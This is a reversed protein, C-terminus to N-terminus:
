IEAKRVAIWSFFNVLGCVIALTLIGIFPNGSSIGMITCLFSLLADSVEPFAVLLIPLGGALALPLGVAILVKVSKVSRYFAIAILYGVSFFLLAVLFTVIIDIVFRLFPNAGTMYFYYLSSSLTMYQVNSVPIADMIYLLLTDMVSMVLSLISITFFSGLFIKKRSKGNQMLLYFYERFMCLGVIFCFFESSFGIGNMDGDRMRAIGFVAVSLILAIVIYYIIIAKALDKCQYRLIKKM